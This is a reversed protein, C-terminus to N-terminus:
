DPDFVILDAHAPSVFVLLMGLAIASPLWIKTQYTPKMIGAICHAIERTLCLIAAVITRTM